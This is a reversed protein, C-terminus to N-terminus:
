LFIIKRERSGAGKLCFNCELSGFALPSTRVPTLELKEYKTLTYLPGGDSFDLLAPRTMERTFGHWKEPLM